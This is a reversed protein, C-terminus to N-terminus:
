ADSEGGSAQFPFRLEAYAKGKRTGRWVQEGKSNYDERLLGAQSLTSLDDEVFSPETARLNGGGTIVLDRNPGLTRSLLILGGDGRIYMGELIRLQQESFRPLEEGSSISLALEGVLPSSSSLVALGEAIQDLTAQIESFNEKLLGQLKISLLQNAELGEVVQKQNRDLLFELFADLDRIDRNSPSDLFQKLFALISLFLSLADM